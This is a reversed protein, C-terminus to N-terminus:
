NNEFGSNILKSSYYQSMNSLYMSNKDFRVPSASLDSKLPNKQISKKTSSKSNNLKNTSVISTRSSNKTFKKIPIESTLNENRLKDISKALYISKKENQKMSHELFKIREDKIANSAKLDNLKDVTNYNDETNSSNNDSLGGLNEELKRRVLQEVDTQRYINTLVERKSEIKRKLEDNDKRYIRVEADKSQVIQEHIFVKDSLECNINQQEDIKNM